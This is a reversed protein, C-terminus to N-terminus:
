EGTGVATVVRTGAYVGQPARLHRLTVPLPGRRDRCSPPFVGDDHVTRM